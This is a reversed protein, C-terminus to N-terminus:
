LMKLNKNYLSGNLINEIEQVKIYIYTPHNLINFGFPQLLNTNIYIEDRGNRTQQDVIKNIIEKNTERLTEENRLEVM